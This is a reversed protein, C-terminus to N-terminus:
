SWVKGDPNWRKGFMLTQCHIQIFLCFHKVTLVHRCVGTASTLSQISSRFKLVNHMGIISQFAQVIHALMSLGRDDGFDM